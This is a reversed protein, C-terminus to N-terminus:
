VMAGRDGRTRLGALEVGGEAAVAAAAIDANCQPDGLGGADVMLVTHGRERICQAAFAHELGKTDFTGLVAVTSM